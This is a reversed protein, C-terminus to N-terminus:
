AQQLRAWLEEIWPEVEEMGTREDSMGLEVLKSGGLAELREDLEQAVQNCDKASTTQRDLLLNSDGVGLVAFHFKGGSLLDSPHTKRKFFRLTTGGDETANGNEVTQMIFCTATTEDSGDILKKPRESASQITVSVTASSPQQDAVREAVDHALEGGYVVILNAFPM